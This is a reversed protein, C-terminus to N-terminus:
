VRELPADVRTGAERRREGSYYFVLYALGVALPISGLLSVSSPMGIVRTAADKEVIQRAEERSMGTSDSLTKANWAMESGTQPRRSAASLGLLGVIVAVGVFSWVLGRLLYVRPTWPRQPEYAPAALGKEMAAMRELHLLQETRNRAFLVGFVIALGAATMVMMLVAETNM